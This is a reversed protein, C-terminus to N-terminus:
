SVPDGSISDLSVVRLEGPAKTREDSKSLNKSTFGKLIIVISSSSSGTDALARVLHKEHNIQLSVVLLVTPHSTKALKISKNRNYSSLLPFYDEDEDSSTTLNIESSLVPEVKKKKSVPNKSINL